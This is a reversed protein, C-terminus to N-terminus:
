RSRAAILWGVLAILVLVALAIVWRDKIAEVMVTTRWSATRADGIGPLVVAIRTSGACGRPVIVGWQPPLAADDRGGRRPLIRIFREGLAGPGALGRTVDAWALRRCRLALAATRRSVISM